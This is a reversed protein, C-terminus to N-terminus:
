IQHSGSKGVYGNRKIVSFLQCHEFNRRATVGFVCPRYVFSLMMTLRGSTPGGTPTPIGVITLAVRFYERAGARGLPCVACQM